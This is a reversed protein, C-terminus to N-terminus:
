KEIKEFENVANSSLNSVLGPLNDRALPIALDTLAKKGLNCLWSGFSGGSQIMKSIQPKSLKIHTSINNAFANRIKVTQKITLFWEHPM